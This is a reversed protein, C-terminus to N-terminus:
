VRLDVYAVRRLDALYRRAINELRETRLNSEVTQRDVQPAADKRECVMFVGIGGRVPLPETPKAVGAALVAPRIEAPLDTVPTQGIPGSLDPSITKGAKAMEGCSRMDATTDKAKKITAARTAADANDALPFVVQQLAVVVGDGSGEPARREIVYYIYYGGAERQPPSMTKPQMDDIIKEASADLMGPAVWGMDGGVAATPSQSFQRAVQEFHGNHQIEDFLRDALQHVEQDEQPNDVSLFIEALRTESKQRQAEVTKLAANVEDDGVTVTHGYRRQVVRAWLTQATLQAILSDKDIHHSALFADLGDPALHNMRALSALQRNLEEDSLTVDEKKAEQVELKEDILQRMVQNEIRSRTDSDDPINASAMVMNIRANVDAMSIVQDNVVAAIRVDQASAHGGALILFAIAAVRLLRNQCSVM